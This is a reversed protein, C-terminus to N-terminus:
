AKMRFAFLFMSVNKHKLYRATFANNTIMAEEVLIRAMCESPSIDGVSFGLNRIFYAADHLRNLRFQWM